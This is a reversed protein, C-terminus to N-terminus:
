NIRAQRAESELKDFRQQALQVETVDNLLNGIEKLRQQNNHLEIDAHQMQLIAHTWAM